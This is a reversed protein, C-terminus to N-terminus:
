GVRAVLVRARGTLDPYVDVSPYGARALAAVPDAQHPAIECVLVGRASLWRPANTVLHELAETGRPGAVLARHPEYRAVEDPLAAFESDAVYPPNSVVLDIRGCLETPLADFWWGSALRVRAAGAGALNARAVALADESIDTAWVEADPLEAEIAIAIAGSGTGLDAVIGHTEHPVLSRRGRRQGLREAEAVAVEVVVETEPRPILVRDDVMLDVGRFSWEGLVYQLPEGTIRRECMTALNTRARDHLEADQVDLWEAGAYGSAQETLWRAEVDPSAIGAEALRRAVDARADRWTKAGSQVKETV